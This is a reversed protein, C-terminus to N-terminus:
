PLLAKPLAAVRAGNKDVLLIGVLDGNERSTVAAGHWSAEITLGADIVWPLAGRSLHSAALAMPALSPDGTALCDEPATPSRLRAKPWPAPTSAPPSDVAYMAVELGEPAKSSLDFTVGSVELTVGDDSDEPSFLMDAPGLLGAGLWLVWSSRTKDRSFIGEEWSLKARTPLLAADSAQAANGVALAPRWELWEEEARDHLPFHTGSAALAGGQDPTAFGIGGTILSQLSDIEMHMGGIGVDMSLGGVEFFRSNELVLSAYQPEIAIRVEVVRADSSLEASLVQGVPTRRWTVPAGRRAGGREAAELVLELSGPAVDVPPEALGEFTQRSAGDEPGPTVNLYHAGLVTDLGTIGGFEIQPRVIWFRSGTRALARSSEILQVGVSVGQLSPTLAVTEVEGVSIGHYRLSDGAKIGHGDAFHITIELGRQDWARVLYWASFLIALIPVLSAISAVSYSRKSTPLIRAEPVQETSTELPVPTPMTM